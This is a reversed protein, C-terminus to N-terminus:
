GRPSQYLMILLLGAGASGGWTARNRVAGLLRSGLRANPRYTFHPSESQSYLPQTCLPCGLSTMGRWTHWLQKVICVVHLQQSFFHGGHQLQVTM